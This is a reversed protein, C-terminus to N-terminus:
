KEETMVQEMEATMVARLKQHLTPFCARLESLASTIRGLAVAMAEVDSMNVKFFCVRHYVLLCTTM